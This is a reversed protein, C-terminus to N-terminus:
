AFRKKGFYIQLNRLMIRLDLKLPENPLTTAELTFLNPWIKFIKPLDELSKLYSAFNQIYKLLNPFINDYIFYQVLLM